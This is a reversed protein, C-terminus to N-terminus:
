SFGTDLAMMILFGALCGYLGAKTQTQTSQPLLDSLVVYIMAGAAFSLCFPLFTTLLLAFSAGLVAGIVEISGSFQGLLFAKRKSIGSRHLPISVAMGEPINQLGLAVALLIAESLTYAEGSSKLGGFAFGLALGEPFNHLTIAMVLLMLNKSVAGEALHAQGADLEEDNVHPALPSAPSEADLLTSTRAVSGGGAEEVVRGSEMEERRIPAARAEVANLEAEYVVSGGFCCKLLRNSSSHEPLIWDALKIAFVGAVFGLSAPIWPKWKLEKALTVSPGLLSFFCASLMVGASSGYVFDMYKASGRPDAGTNPVLAAAVPLARVRV